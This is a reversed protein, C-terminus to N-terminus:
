HSFRAPSASGAAACRHVPLRGLRDRNLYANGAADVALGANVTQGGSSGSVATSYILSSGDPKLKTVHQNVGAFGIQCLGFCYFALHFTTQYAGPTTPYDLRATNGAVYINGSPDFAIASGGIGTASFIVKAGSSDLEMLYPRGTTDPVNYASATVPFGPGQANGSVLILGQATVAVAQAGSPATGGLLTSFLVEGNPDLKTLFSRRTDTSATTPPAGTTVPFDPSYTMGVVYANGARDM